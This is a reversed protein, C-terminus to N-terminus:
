SLNISTLYSSLPILAHLLVLPSNQHITVFPSNKNITLICLPSTRGGGADRGRGRIGATGGWWVGGLSPFPPLQKCEIM